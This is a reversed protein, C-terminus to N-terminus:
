TNFHFYYSLCFIMGSSMTTLTQNSLRGMGSLGNNIDDVQAALTSINTHFSQLQEESTTTILKQPSFVATAGVQQQIIRSGDHCDDKTSSFFSDQVIDQQAHNTVFTNCQESENELEHTNNTMAEKNKSSAPKVNLNDPPLDPFSLEPVEPLSLQTGGTLELYINENDVESKKGQQIHENNSCTNQDPESDYNSLFATNTKKPDVTKIPSFDNSFDDDTDTTPNNAPNNQNSAYENVKTDDLCQGGEGDVIEAMDDNDDITNLSESDQLKNNHLNVAGHNTHNPEATTEEEEIIDTSTQKIFNDYTHGEDPLSITESDRTDENHLIVQCFIKNIM